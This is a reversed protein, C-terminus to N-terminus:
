KLLHCLIYQLDSMNMVKKSKDSIEKSISNNMTMIIMIFFCGEMSWNNLWVLLIDYRYFQNIYKLM